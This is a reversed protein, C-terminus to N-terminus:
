RKERSRALMYALLAAGCALALAVFAYVGMLLLGDTTSYCVACAPCAPDAMPGAATHMPATLRMAWRCM